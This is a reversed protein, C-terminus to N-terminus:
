FEEIVVAEIRAQLDVGLADEEPVRGTEGVCRCGLRDVRPVLGPVLLHGLVGAIQPVHQSLEVAVAPLSQEGM